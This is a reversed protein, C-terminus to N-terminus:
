SRLSAATGIRLAFPTPSKPLATGFPPKWHRKINVKHLHGLLSRGSDPFHGGSIFRDPLKALGYTAFRERPLTSQRIHSRRVKPNDSRFRRTSALRTHPKLRCLEPGSM